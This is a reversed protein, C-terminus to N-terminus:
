IVEFNKETSLLTVEGRLDMPPMQQSAIFIREGSLAKFLLKKFIDKNKKLEWEINFEDYVHL